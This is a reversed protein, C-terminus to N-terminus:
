KISNQSFVFRPNQLVRYNAGSWVLPWKESNFTQILIPINPQGFTWRQDIDAIVAFKAADLKPEFRFQDKRLPRKFPWTSLGQWTAAQLYDATRAHLLWAINQHCIVLDEPTTRSNIWHAASEVEQNSQTTWFDIRTKLTGKVSSPLIVLFSLGAIIFPVSMSLRRLIKSQFGARRVLLFIKRLGFGCAMALLPTLIIAQYYFVTLNQRNQLLLFSILLGGFGIAFARGRLCILFMLLGFAHFADQLFFRSINEIFKFGGGNERSADVYFRFTEVLDSWIFGQKPYLCFGLALSALTVLLYPGCVPLWSRPYRFRLLAAAILGYVSLPLALASIALGLGVLYNSKTKIKGSLGIFALAYGLAILNHTFIWRFHIVSQEFTLFILAAGFSFMFGLVKRGYFTIILATILAFFSNVLRGGLIDGGTLRTAWGICFEYFPQYPAYPNWFTNWFSGHVPIGHALNLGATLALGEDGYWAPSTRINPLYLCAWVLTVIIVFLINLKNAVSANTM